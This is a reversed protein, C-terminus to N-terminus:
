SVFYIEGYLTVKVRNIDELDYTLLPFCKERQIQYIMPIGMANTDIM